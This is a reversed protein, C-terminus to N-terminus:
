AEHMPMKRNLNEHSLWGIVFTKVYKSNCTEIEFICILFYHLFANEFKFLLMQTSKKNQQTISLGIVLSVMFTMPNDILCPM